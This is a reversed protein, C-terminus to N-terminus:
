TSANKDGTKFHIGSFILGYVLGIAILLAHFLCFLPFVIKDFFSQKRWYKKFTNFIIMIIKNIKKKGAIRIENEFLNGLKSNVKKKKFKTRLVIYIFGFLLSKTFLKSHDLRLTLNTVEINDFLITTFGRLSLRIALDPGEGFSSFIKEDFWSNLHLFDKKYIAFASPHFGKTIQFGSIEGLIPWELKQIKAKAEFFFLFFDSALNSKQFKFIIEPWFVYRGDWSFGTLMKEIFTKEVLIDDDLFILFDGRAEKIGTNRAFSPGKRKELLYKVPLKGQFGLVVEKTKDSSDNDVTIVEFPTVTQQCLCGLIEKIRGARNRTPIIVTVRM